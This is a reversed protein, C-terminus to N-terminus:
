SSIVRRFAPLFLRILFPVAILGVVTAIGISGGLIVGAAIATLDWLVISLPVPWQHVREAALSLATFGDPGYAAAAALSIGGSFLILGLLLAVIDGMLSPAASAAGVGFGMAPGILLLAIPTGLGIPIRGLIWALLCCSFTVLPVLLWFPVPLVTGLSELLLGIGFSGFGGSTAVGLGLGVLIPAVVGAFIRRLSARMEFLGDFLRSDANVISAHNDSKLSIVRSIMLYFSTTLTALLVLMVLRYANSGAPVLTQLKQFVDPVFVSTTLVILLLASLGTVVGSIVGSISGGSRQSGKSRESGRSRQSRTPGKPEESDASEPQASKRQSEPVNVDVSESVPVAKNTNPSVVSMVEPPISPLTSTTVRQGESEEYENADIEIASNVVDFRVVSLSYKANLLKSCLDDLEYKGQEPYNNAMFLSHWYYKSLIRELKLEKLVQLHVMDVPSLLANFQESAEKLKLMIDARHALEQDSLDSNVSAVELSLRRFERVRELLRSETLAESVSYHLNANINSANDHRKTSSSTRKVPGTMIRAKRSPTLVASDEVLMMYHRACNTM